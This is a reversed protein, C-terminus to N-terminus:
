APEGRTMRVAARWTLIVIGVVASVVCLAHLAGLSLVGLTPNADSWPALPRLDAHMVGDLAVHSWTGLLAGALAALSAVGAPERLWALLGAGGSREFWALLPRATILGLAWTAIGVVTAGAYTHVPGHVVPDHRIMHVLPELDMAVQAMAFTTFSMREGVVSKLALGPGLHLPTFPM